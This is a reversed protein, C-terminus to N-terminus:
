LSGIVRLIFDSNGISPASIDVGVRYLFPIWPGSFFQSTWSWVDWKCKLWVKFGHAIETVKFANQRVELARYFERAGWGNLNIELEEDESEATYFGWGASWMWEGAWPKDMSNWRGQMSKHRWWDFGEVGLEHWGGLGWLGVGTAEPLLQARGERFGELVQARNWLNGEPGKETMGPMHLKENLQFPWSWSINLSCFLDATLLPQYRDNQIKMEQTPPLSSDDTLWECHANVFTINHTKMYETKALDTM